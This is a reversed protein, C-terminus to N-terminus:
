WRAPCPCWRSRASGAGAPRRARRAAGRWVPAERRFGLMGYRGLQELDLHGLGGGHVAGLVGDARQLRDLIEADGDGDVIEFRSNCWSSTSITFAIMESALVM